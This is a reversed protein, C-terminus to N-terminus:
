NRETYDDATEALQKFAEKKEQYEDMTLNYLLSNKQNKIEAYHVANIYPEAINIKDLPTVILLQLNLQACFEMLFQSKQPDLKSFAEDVTIFRLSRHQKGAEYIGFQHAIAAGLIAYTFQAKQGGSYSATSDHYHMPKHDVVTYERASFTLWNRIDTVKKRWAEEKQLDTILDKIKEFVQERYSEEENKAFDIINPIAMNLKENFIRIDQEKTSKTELQLYTDPNKNFTIKKLPVNLEEIIDKIKEVETNLWTRYNTLADLMSRDMYDKFRRKHEVLRQNRILDHLSALEEIGHLNPSINLVDGSWDAFEKTIKEAPHVFGAILSTTEQEIESLEKIVSDRRKKFRIFVAKNFDELAQLDFIDSVSLAENEFFSNIAAEGEPSLGEFDLTLKRKNKDNYDKELLTLEKAIALHKKKQVEIEKEVEALQAVITLYANSSTQLEEIRRNYLAIKEAHEQWAVEDYAKVQSAQNLIQLKEKAAAILPDLQKLADLKSGHEKEMQQKQQLLYQITARNDWGLRYKGKDWRGPRDDKEHRTANRILGNSTIAKQSGWFVELDDTCYYNFREVLYAELWQQYPSDKLELKNILVDDDNLWRLTASSSKQEMKHYVLKTRMDNAHIFQNAQRSFKAPVLLQMSFSHL